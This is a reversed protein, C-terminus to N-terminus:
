LHSYLSLDATATILLIPQNPFLLTLSLVM